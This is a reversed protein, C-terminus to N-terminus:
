LKFVSDAIGPNLQVNKWLSYTWLQGDQYDIWYVPLLNGPDVAIRKWMQKPSAEYLDVVYYKKGDQWVVPEPTVKSPKGDANVYTKLAQALSLFDSEVMPWGNVCRLYSSHDPVTGSFISLVGGFHGKVKGPTTMVAVSGDNPGDIVEIRMKSPKKYTLSGTQTLTRSKKFVTMEYEFSYDNLDSASKVMREIFSKGDKDTETTFQKISLQKVSAWKGAQPDADAAACVPAMATWGILSIFSSIIALYSIYRLTRSKFM